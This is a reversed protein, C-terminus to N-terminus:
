ASPSNIGRRPRFLPSPEPSCIGDSGQYVGSYYGDPYDSQVSRWRCAFGQGIMTLSAFDSFAGAQAGALQNGATDYVCFYRKEQPSVALAMPDLSLVPRKVVIANTLDYYKRDPSGM